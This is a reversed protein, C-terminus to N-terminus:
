AKLLIRTSNGNLFKQNIKKAKIMCEFYISQTLKLPMNFSKKENKNENELSEPASKLSSDHGDNHNVM